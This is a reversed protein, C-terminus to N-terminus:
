LKHKYSYTCRDVAYNEGKYFNNKLFKYAANIDPYSYEYLSNVCGCLEKEAMCVIKKREAGSETSMYDTLRDYLQQGCKGCYEPSLIQEEYALEREMNMEFWALDIRELEEPAFRILVKIIEAANVRKYYGNDFLYKVLTYPKINVPFLVIGDLGKELLEQIGLAADEIRQRVSLFPAGLLVNAIVGIGNKQLERTIEYESIMSPKNLCYKLVYPSVSEQGYEVIIKRNRMTQKIKNLKEVSVYALHSELIIREIKTKAVVNIVRMLNDFSLEEECLCSGCTNLLLFKYNSGYQEIYKCVKDVADQSAAGNWYDCVSCKGEMSFRCAPTNIWIQLMRNTSFVTYPLSSDIKPRMSRLCLIATSLIHGYEYDFDPNVYTNTM